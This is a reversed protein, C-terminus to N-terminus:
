SLDYHTVEPIHLEFVKFHYKINRLIIIFSNIYHGNLSDKICILHQSDNLYM